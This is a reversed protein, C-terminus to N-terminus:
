VSRLAHLNDLHDVEFLECVCCHLSQGFPDCPACALVLPRDPSPKQLQDFSCQLAIMDRM